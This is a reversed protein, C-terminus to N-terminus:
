SCLHASIIGSIKCSLHYYFSLNGLYFFSMSTSFSLTAKSAAIGGSRRIVLGHKTSWDILVAISCQFARTVKNSHCLPVKLLSTRQWAAWHAIKERGEKTHSQAWVCWCSLLLSLFPLTQQTCTHPFLFLLIITGQLMFWAGPRPPELLPLKPEQLVASLYWLNLADDGLEPSNWVWRCNCGHAPAEASGESLSLALAASVWIVSLFDRSCCSDM